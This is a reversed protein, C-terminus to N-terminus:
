MLARGQLFPVIYTDVLHENLIKCNPASIKYDDLTNWLMATRYFFAYKVVNSNVHLIFLRLSYVTSHDRTNVSSLVM